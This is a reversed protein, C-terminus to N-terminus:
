TISAKFFQTFDGYVFVDTMAGDNMICPVWVGQPDLFYNWDLSLNVGHSQNASSPGNGLFTLEIDNVIGLSCPDAYPDANYGTFLVAGKPYQYGDVLFPAGNVQGILNELTTRPVLPMRMLTISIESRPRVYGANAAALPKGASTGGNYLISGTPPAVVEGSARTKTVVWAQASGDGQTNTAQAAAQWMPVTFRCTLVAFAYVPWGVIGTDSDTGDEDAQFKLGRIEEISTCVMRDKFMNGQDVQSQPIPYSWPPTRMVKGGTYSVTGLLAQRLNYRQDWDCKFYVTAGVDEPTSREWLGFDDGNPSTHIAVPVNGVNFLYNGQGM